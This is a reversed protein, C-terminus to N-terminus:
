EVHDWSMLLWCALYILIPAGIGLITAVVFLLRLITADVGLMAAWGGCVGAVMKNTSSRRLKKVNPQHQDDSM